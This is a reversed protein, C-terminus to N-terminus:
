DTMQLAATVQATLEQRHSSFDARARVLATVVAPDV